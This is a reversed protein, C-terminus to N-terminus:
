DDLTDPDEEAGALPDHLIQGPKPNFPPEETLIDNIREITAIAAETTVGPNPLHMPLQTDGNRDVFAAPNNPHVPVGYHEVQGDFRRQNEDWKAKFQQALDEVPIGMHDLINVFSGIFHLIDVFEDTVRALDPQKHKWPKWNLENAFEAAEISLALGYTRLTDPYANDHELRELAPRQKEALYKLGIFLELPFNKDM